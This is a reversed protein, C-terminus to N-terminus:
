KLKEIISTEFIRPNDQEILKQSSTKITALNKLSSPLMSLYDEGSPRSYTEALTWRTNQFQKIEENPLKVNYLREVFRNIEYIMSKSGSVSRYEPKPPGKPEILERTLWIGNDSLTNKIVSTLERYQEPTLYYGLVDSIILDSKQTDKTLSLVDLQIFEVNNPILGFQKYIQGITIPISSLDFVSLRGNFGKTKLWTLTEIVSPIGIAGFLMVQEANTIKEDVQNKLEETLRLLSLFMDAPSGQLESFVTIGNKSLDPIETISLWLNSIKDESPPILSGWKIFSSLQQLPCHLGGNYKEQLSSSFALRIKGEEIIVRFIQNALNKETETIDSALENKLM